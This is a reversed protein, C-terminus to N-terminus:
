VVSRLKALKRQHKAIEDMEQLQRMWQNKSMPNPSGHKKALIVYKKYENESYKKNM